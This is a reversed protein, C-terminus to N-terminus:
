LRGSGVCASPFGCRVRRVRGSLPGEAGRSRRLCPPRSMVLYPAMDSRGRAGLCGHYAMRPLPKPTACCSPEPIRCRMTDVVSNAQTSNTRRTRSRRPANQMYLTATALLAHTRPVVHFMFFLCCDGESCECADGRQILEAVM